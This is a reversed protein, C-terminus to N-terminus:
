KNFPIISPEDAADMDIGDMFFMMRKTNGFGIEPDGSLDAKAFAFIAHAKIKEAAKMKIYRDFAGGSSFNLLAYYNEVLSMGFQLAEKGKVPIDKLNPELQFTIIDTNPNDLGFQGLGKNRLWQGIPSKNYDKIIAGLNEEKYSENVAFVSNAGSMAFRSFTVSFQMSM